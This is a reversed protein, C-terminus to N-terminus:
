SPRTTLISKDIYSTHLYTSNLYTHIYRHIYSPTYTPIYYTPLYALLYFSLLYSVSVTNKGYKPAVHECFNCFLSYFQPDYRITLLRISYDLAIFIQWIKIKEILNFQRLDIIIKKVTSLFWM